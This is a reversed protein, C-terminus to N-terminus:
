LSEDFCRERVRALKYNIEDETIDYIAMLQIMMFWVDIIEDKIDGQHVNVKTREQMLITILEGMEEVAKEKQAEEGFKEVFREINIM